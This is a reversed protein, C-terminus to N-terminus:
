RKLGHQEMYAMEGHFGNDLWALLGAEAASLDVGAVGIQSFGLEHAWARIETVM